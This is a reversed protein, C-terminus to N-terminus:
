ATKGMEFKYRGKSLSVQCGDVIKGSEKKKVRFLNENVPVLEINEPKDYFFKAISKKSEEPSSNTALTRTDTLLTKRTDKAPENTPGQDQKQDTVKEWEGLETKKYTGDKRESTSGVPKGGKMVVLTNLNKAVQSLLMTRNTKVAKEALSKAVEHSYGVNRGANYVGDYIDNM